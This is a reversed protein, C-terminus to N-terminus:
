ARDSHSVLQLNPRLDAGLARERCGDRRELRVLAHFPRERSGEAHELANSGEREFLVPAADFEMRALLEAAPHRARDRFAHRVQLRAEVGPRTAQLRAGLWGSARKLTTQAHPM